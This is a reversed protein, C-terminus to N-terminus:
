IISIKKILFFIAVIIVTGLIKQMTRPSFKTSGLFSGAAGGALVAVILPIYDTLDVPNYQLRAILGSLSNILIFIAGSAAAEKETGLGLIIILPILYIGGGIGVIGALLGLVSGALLSVAIKGTKGINPKIAINNWFYIRVAVFLLSILLLWYFMEKPLKLSGGLYAMPISTVLFPFILKFKAHKYKIFHYSGVSTVLLNLFLTIMPIELTNFGLIAMLATYSSGGGLGVSSYTFAILFFLAAIFYASSTIDTLEM